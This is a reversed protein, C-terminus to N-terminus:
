INVDSAVLDPTTYRLCCRRRDVMIPLFSLNNAPPLSEARNRSDAQLVEAELRSRTWKKYTKLSKKESKEEDVRQVIQLCLTKEIVIKEKAALKVCGIYTGMM